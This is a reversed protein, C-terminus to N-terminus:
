KEKDIKKEVKEIVKNGLKWGLGISVVVCFVYIGTELASKANNGVRIAFDKM